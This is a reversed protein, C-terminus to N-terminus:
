LYFSLPWPCNVICLEASKCFTSFYMRLMQRFCFCTLLRELCVPEEEIETGSKSTKEKLM